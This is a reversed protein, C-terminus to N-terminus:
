SNKSEAAKVANGGKGGTKGGKTTKRGKQGGGKVQMTARSKATPRAQAQQFEASDFEVGDVSERAVSEQGGLQFPAPQESAHDIESSQTFTERSHSNSTSPPQMEHSGEKFMDMGYFPVLESADDIDIVSPNSSDDEDSASEGAGMDPTAMFHYGEFDNESAMNHMGEMRVTARGSAKGSGKSSAPPERGRAADEKRMISDLKGAERAQRGGAKMADVDYRANANDQDSSKVGAPKASRNRDGAPSNSRSRSSERQDIRKVKEEAQAHTMLGRSAQDRYYERETKIATVADRDKEDDKKKKNGQGMRYQHEKAQESVMLTGMPFSRGNYKPKEEDEDYYLEAFSLIPMDAEKAKEQEAQLQRVKDKYMIDKPDFPAAAFQEGENNVNAMDGGAGAPKIEIDGFDFNFDQNTGLNTEFANANDHRKRVLSSVSRMKRVETSDRILENTIEFLRQSIGGAHIHIDRLFREIERIRSKLSKQSPVFCVKKARHLVLARIKKLSRIERSIYTVWFEEPAEHLYYSLSTEDISEPKSTLQAAATSDMQARPVIKPISTADAVKQQQGTPDTQKFIYAMEIMREKRRMRAILKMYLTELFNNQAQALKENHIVLNLVKNLDKLFSLVESIKMDVLKHHLQNTEKIHDPIEAFNSLTFRMVKEELTILKRVQANLLEADEIFMQIFVEESFAQQKTHADFKTNVFVLDPDGTKAWNDPDVSKSVGGLFADAVTLSLTKKLQESRAADQTMKQKRFSNSIMDQSKGGLEAHLMLSAVHYNDMKMQLTQKEFPFILKNLEENLRHNLTSMSLVKNGKAKAEDLAKRVVAKYIADHNDTHTAGYMEYAKGEASIIENKVVTEYLLNKYQLYTSKKINMNKHRKEVSDVGDGKGQEIFLADAIITPMCSDFDCRSQHARIREVFRIELEALLGQQEQTLNRMAEHRVEAWDAADALTKGPKDEDKMEIHSQTWEEGNEGSKDPDEGNAKARAERALQEATKKGLLAHVVNPVNADVFRQYVSNWRKMSRVHEREEQTM